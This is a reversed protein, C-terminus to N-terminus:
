KKLWKGEANQYFNGAATKGSTKKAALISVQDLSLGNSGAIKQYSAKRLNNVSKVLAKVETSAPKIVYGLYGDNREGVLGQQKASALDIAWAQSSVMLVTLMIFLKKM